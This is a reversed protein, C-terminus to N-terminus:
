VPKLVQLELGVALDKVAEKYELMHPAKLHAKVADLNTWQEIVVVTNDGLLRQAGFGSDLDIAPGYELCGQEARVKPVLQAFIELYEDRKGPAIQITAQVHIM